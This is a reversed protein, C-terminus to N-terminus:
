GATLQPTTDIEGSQVPRQKHQSLTAAISIRM